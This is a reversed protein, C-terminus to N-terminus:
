ILTLIEGIDVRDLPLIFYHDESIIPGETNFFRVAISTERPCKPGAPDDRPSDLPGLAGLHSLHPSPGPLTKGVHELAFGRVALARLTRADLGTDQSAKAASVSIGLSEVVAEVPM